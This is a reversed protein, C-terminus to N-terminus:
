WTEGMESSRGERERQRKESEVAWVAFLGGVVFLHLMQGGIWMILGGLEQDALPSVDFVPRVDTYASYLLGDSLTIFAGLAAQYTAAAVVYAIRLLHGMRAHLPAPDIVTWWFLFAGGLFSLHQVDHIVQDRAAADYWTPIVHWVGVAISYLAFAVLPHTILRYLSRATRSAALPAIVGRKISKPLGRLLPTTPAGILVLPVAIMVMVMHQVMHMSFHHEALRDLPSESVLLLLLLGTLYSATHWWRHERSREPWRKLGRIYISAALVLLLIIQLDFNWATWISQGEGILGHAPSWDTSGIDIGPSM